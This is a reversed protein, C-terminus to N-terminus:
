KQIEKLTEGNKGQQVLNGGNYDKRSDSPGGQGYHNKM